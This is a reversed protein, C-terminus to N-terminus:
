VKALKMLIVDLTRYKKTFFSSFDNALEVDSHSEPLTSPQEQKM